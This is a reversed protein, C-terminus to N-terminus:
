PRRAWIWYNVRRTGKDVHREYRAQYGRYRWYHCKKEALDKRRTSGQYWFTKGGFEKPSTATTIFRKM